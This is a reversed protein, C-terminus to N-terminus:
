LSVHDAADAALDYYAMCAAERGRVVRKGKLLGYTETVVTHQGERHDSDYFYIIVWDGTKGLEHAKATNSFLVTFHWGDRDSHLIPLWTKHQPNFRRPAIMPLKGAAAERRYERDVDLLMEVPPASSEDLPQRARARGLLAAVSARIAAARRVGIGAVKELRGDHAAVELSELTDIHLTEHIARALAPGVGPVTQLLVEPDAAGRLRDLRSLRGTQALEAIAQALGPGVSPLEMLGKTGHERWIESADNRLLELTEAAHLYANARFPSANQQKSLAACQRM